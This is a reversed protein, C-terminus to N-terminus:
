PASLRLLAASRAAEGWGARAAQDLWHLAERRDEAVGLGHALVYGWEAMGEPDAEAAAQALWQASAELDQPTAAEERLLLGYATKAEPPGNQAARRFHDTMDFRTTVLTRVEPEAARYTRTVWAQDAPDDWGVMALLHNAAAAPDYTELDPNATLDYLRRHAQDDGDALVRATVQHADPMPGSDFRAMQADSLRLKSLVHGNQLALSIKRWHYAGAADGLAAHAEGLEAVDKTGCRMLSVARDLYDAARDRPVYPMAFMLALFDGRAEIVDAFEDYTARMPRHGELLRAKLRIAAGEGRAAAQDLLRLVEEAIQPDHGADEVLAVALDLASTVGNNLYVRRLLEVALTREAPTTALDFELKAFEELAKESGDLRAAWLRHAHAGSQSNRQIRQAQQATAMVRGDLAQSQIRALDPAHKFPDLSALDGASLSATGHGSAAFGRAWRDALALQPADPRQCRHLADLDDMAQAMGHRSVVEALLSDARALAQPDHRQRLLMTALDRMGQPDKAAAAKQLLAMAEVEGAWRGRRLLVEEALTTFIWGPAGPLQSIERLYDMYVSDGRDVEDAVLTVSLNLREALSPGAADLDNSHNYGLIELFTETSAAGSARLAEAQAATVAIGGDVARRLYHLMEANDKSRAPAGLHHQVIRWAAEASGMDA